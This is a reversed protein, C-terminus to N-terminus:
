RLSALHWHVTSCQCPCRCTGCTSSCGPRRSPSLSPAPTPRSSESRIMLRSVSVRCAEGAEPLNVKLRVLDAIVICRSTTTCGNTRRSRKEPMTTLRQRSGPTCAGLVVPEDYRMLHHLLDAGVLVRGLHRSRFVLQRMAAYALSHSSSLCVPPGDAKCDFFEAASESAYDHRPTTKRHM